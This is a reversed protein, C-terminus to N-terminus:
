SQSNGVGEVLSPSIVVISTEREETSPSLPPPSVGRLIGGFVGFDGWKQGDKTWSKDLKQGAKPM